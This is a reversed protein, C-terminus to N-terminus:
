DFMTRSITALAGRHAAAGPPEVRCPDTTVDPNKCRRFRVAVSHTDAIRKMSSFRGRKHSAARTWITGCGISKKISSCGAPLNIARYESLCPSTPRSLVNSRCEIENFQPM